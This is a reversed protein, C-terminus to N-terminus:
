PLRGPGATDPRKLRTGVYLILLITRTDLWNWGSYESSNSDYEVYDAWQLVGKLCGNRLWRASCSQAM